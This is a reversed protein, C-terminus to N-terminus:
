AQPSDDSEEAKHFQSVIDIPHSCAQEFSGEGCNPCLCTSFLEKRCERHVWRDTTEGPIVMMPPVRVQLMNEKFDRKCCHVCKASLQNKSHEYVGPTMPDERKKKFMM